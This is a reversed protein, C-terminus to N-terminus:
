LALRRRAVPLRLALLIVVLGLYVLPEIQFGKVLMLFHVAGLLVAAYVLRHLQRWAPGLRRVSWNNSTLALPLLLAFGAMGITIYPRKLIDAWIQAPIQVDLVLWILLHCSVYYFALVGIARRFKILNVGLLRRMPTVALGLILAQLALEGLRHEIAKAPDVGLLGTAGMWLWVPPPLAGTMYILWVPIRRLSANVREM